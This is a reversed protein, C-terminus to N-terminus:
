KREVHPTLTLDRERDVLQRPSFSLTGLLDFSGTGARPGSLFSTGTIAASGSAGAFRGTGSVATETGALTVGLGDATPTAIGSHTTRFEDGSSATYTTTGAYTIVQAFTLEQHIVFTVRGVHAFQCTGLIELHTADQFRVDGACSGKWSQAQGGEMEPERASLPARTAPSTLSQDSCALPGILFLSLAFRLARSM